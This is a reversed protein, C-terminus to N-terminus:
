PRSAHPLNVIVERDESIAKNTIFYVGQVVEAVNEVVGSDHIM